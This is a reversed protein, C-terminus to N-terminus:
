AAARRAARKERQKQTACPRCTRYTGNPNVYANAAFEHGRQCTDTVITLIAPSVGRWTNERHTVPELHSPNVCNHVRCLHDLPKDDPIPGVTLEYAVRHVLAVGRDPAQRGIRGYGNKDVYGQWLWCSDTKVVRRWLRIEIPTPRGSM